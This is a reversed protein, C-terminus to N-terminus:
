EYVNNNNLIKCGDIFLTPGSVLPINDEDVSDEEEEKKIEDKGNDYIGNSNGEM